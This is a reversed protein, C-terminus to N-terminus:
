YGSVMLGLAGLWLAHEIGSLMSLRKVAPDTPPVDEGASLRAALRVWTPRYLAGAVALRALALLFGLIIGTRPHGGIVVILAIGTLMTAAGAGHDLRRGASVRAPLASVFPKGLALTRRVDGAVWLAAGLWVAASLIHLFLLIANV